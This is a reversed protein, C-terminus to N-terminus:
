DVVVVSPWLYILSISIVQNRFSDANETRVNFVGENEEILDTFGATYRFDLLFDGALTNFQAGAGIAGGFEFRNVREENVQISEYLTPDFDAATQVFDIDFSEKEVEVLGGTAYSFTPGLTVYGRVAEGFGLKGLVPLELYNLRINNELQDTTSEFRKGRQSWNLETLVSFPQSVVFNAAVGAVLGSRWLEEGQDGFTADDGFNGGFADGDSINALNYGVKVGWQAQAMAFASTLLIALFTLTIRKM